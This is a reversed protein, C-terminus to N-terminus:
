KLPKFQNNLFTKSGCGLDVEKICTHKLILTYAKQGGPFRKWFFEHIIGRNPKKAKSGVCKM